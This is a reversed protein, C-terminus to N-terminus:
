VNDEGDPGDGGGTVPQTEDPRISPAITLMDAEESEHAEMGLWLRAENPTYIGAKVMGQIYQGQQQNDGRLFDTADLEFDLNDALLNTFAGDLTEKIPILTDSYMAQRRQRANNYKEGTVAGVMSPPVGFMASIEHILNERLARLDPDQPTPDSLHAISSGIPLMLIKDTAKDRIHNKVNDTLADREEPLMMENITVVPASNLGAGFIRAIMKDARSKNAILGLAQEIRSPGVVSETPIDVLHIIDDEFYTNEKYKYTPYGLENAKFYVDPSHLLLFGMIRGAGSRSILLYANGYLLMSRTISYLFYYSTPSYRNARKIVRLLPDIVRRRNADFVTPKLQAVNRCIVNVCTAVIAERYALEASYSANTGTLTAGYPYGGGSGSSNVVDAILGTPAISSGVMIDDWLIPRTQIQNGPM